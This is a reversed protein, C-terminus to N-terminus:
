TEDTYFAIGMLGPGLHAGMVPTFESTFLELCDFERDIRELLMSADQASHAHMVNVHVPKSGVRTSMVAVMRDMARRHSRPRDLLRAEGLRLETLPKFGLISGAWAAVRPVRGSRGLYYLTDLVALLNVKPILEEVGAIVQRIDAGQHAARAAALAIFGEAGAATRSDMVRINVEPMESRAIRAASRASDYTASFNMALTLCLVDQATKSAKRFAELFVAPRPAATTPPTPSTKVLRYFEDPNIDVGDLFSHGDVALEHPAVFLPLNDVLESPICSCSDVVVAVTHQQVM